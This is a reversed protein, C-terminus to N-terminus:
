PQGALARRVTREDVDLWDAARRRSLGRAVAMELWIAHRPTIKTQGTRYALRARTVPEMHRPRVCRRTGCLPMLLRGEPIAGGERKWIARRATENGARTRIRPTGTADCYGTWIWCGYEVALGGDEDTAERWPM